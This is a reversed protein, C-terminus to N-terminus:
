KDLKMIFNDIAYAIGSDDNSKTIYKAIKKVDDVANEMVIPMGVSELMDMDNYNDGFAIFKKLDVNLKQSLIKLAGGKSINSAMIDLFCSLSSVVALSDIKSFRKNLLSVEDDSDCVLLLKLIDMTSIKDIISEDIFQIQFKMDEPLSKNFEYYVEGRYNEKTSYISNATYILFNVNNVMCYEIIERAINKDIIKSYLIEGTRSNKILSGNCCIIYGKLDLQKIYPKLLLDPRGSAIIIETGNKQLKKLATENEKSIEDKSNLLTGDMDCACYRYELM